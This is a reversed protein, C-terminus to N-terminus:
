PTVSIVAISGERRVTWCPLHSAVGAFIVRDVLTNITGCRKWRADDWSIGRVGEEPVIASEWPEDHAALHDWVDLAIVLSEFALTAEEWLPASVASLDAMGLAATTIEELAYGQAGNAQRACIALETRLPDLLPRM